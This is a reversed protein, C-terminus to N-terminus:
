PKKPPNKIAKMDAEVMTLRKDLDALTANIKAIASATVKEADAVAKVSASHTETAITM